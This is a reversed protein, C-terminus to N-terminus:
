VPHGLRRLVALMAGWRRRGVRYELEDRQEVVLPRGARPHLCAFRHVLDTEEPECEAWFPSGYSTVLVADEWEVLYLPFLSCVEPKLRRHDRGASLAWEHLTCLAPGGPRASLFVCAGDPRERLWPSGEDTKWFGGARDIAAGVDRIERVRPLVREIRRIEGEDLPVRFSACCSKGALGRGATGRQCVFDSCAVRREVTGPVDVFLRGRRVVRPDGRLRAFFGAYDFDDEDSASM